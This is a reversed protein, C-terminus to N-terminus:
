EMGTILSVVFWIPTVVEKEPTHLCTLPVRVKHRACLFTIKHQQSQAVPISCHQLHHLQLFAKIKMGTFCFSNVMSVKRVKRANQSAIFMGEVFVILQGSM